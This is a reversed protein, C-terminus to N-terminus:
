RCIAFGIRKVDYGMFISYVMDCGDGGSCLRCYVYDVHYVILREHDSGFFYIM